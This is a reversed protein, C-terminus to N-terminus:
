DKEKSKDKLKWKKEQGAERKYKLNLHYNKKKLRSKRRKIIEMMRSKASEEKARRKKYFSIKRM